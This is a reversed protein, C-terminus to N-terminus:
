SGSHVSPAAGGAVCLSELRLEQDADATFTPIIDLTHETTPDLGQGVTEAYRVNGGAPRATAGADFDAVLKDGQTRTIPKGDLVMRYHGSTPTEEGFLLVM